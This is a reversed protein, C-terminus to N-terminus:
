ATRAPLSGARINLLCVPLGILRMKWAHAYSRTRRPPSVLAGTWTESRFVFMQHMRWQM